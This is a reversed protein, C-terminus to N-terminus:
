KNNVIVKSNIELIARYLNKLRVNFKIENISTYPPEITALAKLVNIRKYLKFLLPDNNNLDSSLNEDLFNSIINIISYSTNIILSDAKFSHHTIITELAKNSLLKVITRAQNNNENVAEDKIVDLLDLNYRCEIQFMTNLLEKKEQESHLAGLKKDLEVLLNIM